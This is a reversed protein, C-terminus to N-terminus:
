GCGGGLLNCRVLTRDPSSVMLHFLMADKEDVDCTVKIVDYIKYIFMDMFMFSYKTFVHEGFFCNIMSQHFLISSCDSSSEDYQFVM